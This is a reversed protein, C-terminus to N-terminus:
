MVVNHHLGAAKVLHVNYLFPVDLSESLFHNGNDDDYFLYRKVEWPNSEGTKHEFNSMDRFNIEILKREEELMLHFMTKLPDQVTMTSPDFMKLKNDMSTPTCDASDAFDPIDLRISFNSSEILRKVTTFNKFLEESPESTKSSVLSFTSSHGYAYCDPNELTISLLGLDLFSNSIILDRKKKPPM